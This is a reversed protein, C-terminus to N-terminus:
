RNEAQKASHATRAIFQKQQQTLNQSQGLKSVYQSHVPMEDGDDEEEDSDYFHFTVGMYDSEQLM